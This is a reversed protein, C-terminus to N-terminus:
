RDADARLKRERLKLIHEIVARRIRDEEEATIIARRSGPTATDRTSQDPEIERLKEVSRVINSISRLDREPSDSATTNDDSMRNEMLELNHIIIRYLRDILTKVKPRRKRHAANRSKDVKARRLSKDATTAIPPAGVVLLPDQGSAENKSNQRRWGYRRVWGSLTGCPVAIKKSIQQLSIDSQTYLLRAMEHRPDTRNPMM